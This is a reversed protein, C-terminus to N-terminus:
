IGFNKQFSYLLIMLQDFNIMQIVSSSKNHITQNIVDLLLIDKLAEQYKNKLYPFAENIFSYSIYTSMFNDCEEKIFQFETTTAPILITDVENENKKDRIMFNCIHIEDHLNEDCLLSIEKMKNTYKKLIFNNCRHFDMYFKALTKDDTWAQITKSRDDENKKLIFYYTVIDDPEYKAM